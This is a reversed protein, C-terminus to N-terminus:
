QGALNPFQSAIGEPAGEPAVPGPAVEGPQQPLVGEMGAPVGEEVGSLLLEFAKVFAQYMEPNTRELEDIFAKVEELNNPDIGNEQMVKFVQMLAEQRASEMQNKSSFQTANFEARKNGLQGLMNQLEARKEPGVDAGGPAEPMGMPPIDQPPM